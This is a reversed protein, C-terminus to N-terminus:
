GVLPDSTGSMIQSARRSAFGLPDTICREKAVTLCGGDVLFLPVCKFHQDDNSRSCIADDWCTTVRVSWSGPHQRARAVNLRTDTPAVLTVHGMPPHVALHVNRVPKRTREIVIDGLEITTIV